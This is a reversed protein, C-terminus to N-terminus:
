RGHWHLAVRQWFGARNGQETQSEQTEDTRLAIRHRRDINRPEGLQREDAAEEEPLVCEDVRREGQGGCDCPEQCTGPGAEGEPRDALVVLGRM